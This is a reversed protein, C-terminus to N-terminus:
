SELDELEKIDKIMWAMMETNQLNTRNGLDKRIAVLLDGFRLLGSKADLEPNKELTYFFQWLANFARVTNDSGIFTLKFALARYEQSKIRKLAEQQISAKEDDSESATLLAIFPSLVEEYTDLRKDRVTEEYKRQTMINTRMLWAFASIALVFLSSETIFHWLANWM